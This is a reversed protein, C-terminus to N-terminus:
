MQDLCYLEDAQDYLISSGIVASRKVQLAQIPLELSLRTGYYVNELHKYQTVMLIYVTDKTILRFEKNNERIM